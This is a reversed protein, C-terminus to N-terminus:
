VRGVEAPCSAPKLSVRDVDVYSGPAEDANTVSFSAQGGQFTANYQFLKWDTPSLEDPVDGLTDSVGGFKVFFSASTTNGRAYFSL